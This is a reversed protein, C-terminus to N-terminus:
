PCKLLMNKLKKSCIEPAYKKLILAYKLRMNKLFLLM